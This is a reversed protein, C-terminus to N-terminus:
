SCLQINQPENGINAVSMTVVCYLGQAKSGFDNSGVQAIGCKIKQVTFAFKGDRVETGIVARSEECKVPEAENSSTTPDSSAKSDTSSSSGGSNAGIAIVIIAVPIIIKKKKYWPKKLKSVDSEEAM